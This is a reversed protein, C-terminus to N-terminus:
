PTVAYNRDLSYLKGLGNLGYLRVHLTAPFHRVIGPPVHFTGEAGTGLVRYSEGDLTVEGTWLYLMSRSARTERKLHARYTQAAAMAFSEAKPEEIEFPIKEASLEVEQLQVPRAEFRYSRLGELHGERYIHLVWDHTLDPPAGSFSDVKFDKLETKEGTAPDIWEGNWKHKSELEVTVPGPKEIYIVYESGPLSLGRGRDAFYFPEEDWFRTDAIVSKWVALSKLMAADTAAAEPYAGSMSANWLAHRFDDADHGAVRSVAPIPFIQDEVASVAWDPSGYSRLKMWTEDAFPASTMAAGVTRVHHFADADLDAAIERVLDHAHDYKEFEDLIVWTANRASYRAVIYAFYRERSERDAGQPPILVLDAILGKANIAELERDLADFAIAANSGNPLLNPVRVRVHTIGAAARANVWSEFESAAMGEPASDGLWLHAARSGYSFRFHHLNATEIWGPLASATATFHLNKDQNEGPENALANSVRVDWDGAEPPSFRIVRRTPSLAFAHVLFTRHDPGRFEGQINASASASAPVDFTVDCISFAPTSPCITQARLGCGACLLAMWALRGM